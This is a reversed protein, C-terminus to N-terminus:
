QRSDSGLPPNNLTREGIPTDKVSPGTVGGEGGKRPPTKLKRKGFPYTSDSLHTIKEYFFTNKGIKKLTAARPPEQHHPDRKRKGWVRKKVEV